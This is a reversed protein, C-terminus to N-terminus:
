LVRLILTRIGTLIFYTKPNKKATMCANKLTKKDIEFWFKVIHTGNNQLDTEFAEIDALLQAFKAQKLVKKGSKKAEFVYRMLDAYWNGFYVMITGHRPLMATHRQWIPQFESPMEGTTAQVKLLRPDCWARLATVAEGKGSTEIGNVLVLVGVAQSHSAHQLEKLAYQANIIALSIANEDLTTQPESVTKPM